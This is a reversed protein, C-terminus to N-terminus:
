CLVSGQKGDDNQVHAIAVHCNAAGCAAEGIDSIVQRKRESQDTSRGKDVVSSLRPASRRLVEASVCGLDVAISCLGIKTYHMIAVRHLRPTEDHVKKSRELAAHVARPADFAVCHLNQRAETM